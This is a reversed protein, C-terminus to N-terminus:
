YRYQQHVDEGTSHAWPVRGSVMVTHFPISVLFPTIHLVDRGVKGNVITDITMETFEHDHSTPHTYDVTPGEGEGSSM